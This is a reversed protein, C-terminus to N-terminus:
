LDIVSGKFNTTTKGIINYKTGTIAAGRKGGGGDQGWDGGSSGPNGDYGRSTSGGCSNTNGSNGSNGSLSSSITNYGRGVGGNGGNGGNGQTNYYTTVSCNLTWNGACVYGSEGSRPSAGRCRSRTDNPNCSTASGGSNCSTDPCNRSGGGGTSVSRNYNYSDSCSLRPGSNGSNGRGGAGGGSWIKANANLKIRIERTKSTLTTTNKLYLAGGGNGNNPIGGSGYIAGNDTVEFDLNHIVDNMEVGYKSTNTAYCTGDITVKKIINKDLNGNWITSLDLDLDSNLGTQIIDYREITGRFSSLTIPGGSVDASVTQNETADPVIPDLENKDTNRYYSSFKVDNQSGGFSSKLGSFSIPGTKFLENKVTSIPM